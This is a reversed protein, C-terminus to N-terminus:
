IHISTRDDLFIRYDKVCYVCEFQWYRVSALKFAARHTHAVRDSPRSQLLLLIHDTFGNRGSSIHAASGGAGGAGLVVLDAGVGCNYVCNSNDNFKHGCRILLSEFSNIRAYSSKYVCHDSSTSPLYTDSIRTDTSVCYGIATSWTGTTAGTMQCTVALSGSGTQYVTGSACTLTVTAGMITQFYKSPATLLNTKSNVSPDAM